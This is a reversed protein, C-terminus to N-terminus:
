PCASSALPSIISLGSKLSTYTSVDKEEVAFPVYRAPVHSDRETQVFGLPMLRMTNLVLKLGELYTGVPLLVGGGRPQDNRHAFKATHNLLHL